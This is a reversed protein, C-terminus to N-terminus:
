IAARRISIHDPVACGDGYKFVLLSSRNHFLHKFAPHPPAVSIRSRPINTDCSPTLAPSPHTDVHGMVM